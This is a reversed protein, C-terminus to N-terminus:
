SSVKFDQIKRLDGSCRRGDKDQSGLDEKSYVKEVGPASYGRHPHFQAPHPAKMKDEHPLDFLKKSWAFAEALLEDSVGHGAVNAFGFQKLAEFLSQSAKLVEERSGGNSIPSLDICPITLQPTEIAMNNRAYTM